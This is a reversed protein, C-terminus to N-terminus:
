HSSKRKRGRPAIPPLRAEARAKPWVRNQFGRPGVGCDSTRCLAKAEARTLQPNNKLHSALMKIAATEQRSTAPSIQRDRSGCLIEIVDGTLLEILDLPLNEWGSIWTYHEVPRPGIPWKGFPRSQVWDLDNPELHPPVRLLDAHDRLTQEARKRETVDIVAGILLTSEPDDAAARHAVVQIHKVSGNPMLLRHEANFGSRESSAREIIRRVHM